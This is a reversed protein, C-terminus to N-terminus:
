SAGEKDIEDKSLVDPEPTLSNISCAPSISYRLKKLINQEIKITGRKKKSEIEVIYDYIIDNEKTM